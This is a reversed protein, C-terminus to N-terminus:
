FFILAIVIAAILIFAAFSAALKDFRTAIKRFQTLRCFFREIINRHRYAVSDYPSEVRRNTKSPIVCIGEHEEIYEVIANSDYGRDAMVMSGSLEATELLPLAFPADHKEGPSLLFKWITGGGDVLAHIKKTM